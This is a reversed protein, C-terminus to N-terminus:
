ISGRAAACGSAAWRGGHWTPSPSAASAPRSAGTAFGGLRFAMRAEYHGNYPDCDWWAEVANPRVLCLSRTERLLVDEPARDLHKACFQARRETDQRRLFRARDRVQDVLMDEVHPPDPRAAGLRWTVIDGIRMLAGDPYRIDGLLLPSHLKVPRVWRLQSVPDPMATMGAVCVGARMRTVALILIDPNSM